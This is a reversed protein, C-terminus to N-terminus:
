PNRLLGRVAQLLEPSAYFNTNALRDLALNGDFYGKMAGDVIVALTGAVKLGFDQAVRRGKKEDILIRDAALELALAIAESEGLDLSLRAPISTPATVHLWNPPNSAWDAAPSLPHLLEAMVPPPIHVEGYLSPLHDAIGIAVLYALPGSDSVIIV